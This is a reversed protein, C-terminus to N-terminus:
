LQACDLTNPVIVFDKTQVKSASDTLQLKKLLVLNLFKNPFVVALINDGERLPVIL